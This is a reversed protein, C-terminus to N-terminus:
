YNLHHYIKKYYNNSLSQKNHSFTKLYKQINSNSKSLENIYILGVIEVQFIHHNKIDKLKMIQILFLIINELNQTSLLKIEKKPKTISSYNM